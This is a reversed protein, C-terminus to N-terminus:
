PDIGWTSTIGKRCLLNLATGNQPDHDREDLMVWELLDNSGELRWSILVQSESNRNRLTYATPM